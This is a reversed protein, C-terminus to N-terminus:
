TSFTIEGAASKRLSLMLTLKRRRQTSSHNRFAATKGPIFVEPSREGGFVWLFDIDDWNSVYLNVRVYGGTFVEKGLLQSGSRSALM